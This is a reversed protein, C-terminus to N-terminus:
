KLWYQLPNLVQAKRPSELWDPLKAEYAQRYPTDQHKLFAEVSPEQWREYLTFLNAQQQDEHLHCAIFSPEEAMKDLLAKCASLWEDRCEAKIHLQVYFVLESGHSKTLENM